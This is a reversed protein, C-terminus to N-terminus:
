FHVKCVFTTSLKARTGVAVADSIPTRSVKLQVADASPPVNGRMQM